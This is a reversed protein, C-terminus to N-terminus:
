AEIGQNNSGLDVIMELCGDLDELSYTVSKGSSFYECSFKFPVSKACHLAEALLDGHGTRTWQSGRSLSSSPLYVNVEKGLAFLLRFRGRIGGAPCASSIFRIGRAEEQKELSYIKKLLDLQKYQPSCDQTKM